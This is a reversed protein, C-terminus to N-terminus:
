WGIAACAPVFVNVLQNMEDAVLLAAASEDRFQHLRQLVPAM